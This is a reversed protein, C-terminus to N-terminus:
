KKAAGPQMARTQELEQKARPDYPTEEVVKELRRIAEDVHGQERLSMAICIESAPLNPSLALARESYDIAGKYDHMSYALAALNVFAPVYRPDIKLAQQYHSKADEFQKREFFTLGLDSHAETSQPEIALAERFQAIAEDYRGLHRYANALELRVPFYAPAMHTVQELEHIGEELEGTHLLANGLFEHATVNDPTCDKSHRLLTVSDHWYSIQSYTTAALLAISALVAAPLVRSRLFGSPILEPVLWTVALFIGVLPLYTYRDAMQQSGIQVLGIMPVLTGLYWFWGVMLFPFRRYCAVAFATMVLLILVSLGIVMWSLSDHPHPYYFALNQPFLTKQLYAVYAYIANKLRWPFPFGELSVVAGSQSQAVLAMASFAGSAAFYPVKELLLRSWSQRSPPNSADANQAADASRVAKATPGRGRATPATPGAERGLSLRGLPWYDFLLLLCPLTVFTQKSLLSGVFFLVSLALRWLRGRTAYRVYVLLSLFGFFTSLVDKREAVWAVSEVHLPHLAFLAAVM